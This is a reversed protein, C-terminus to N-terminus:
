KGTTFQTEWKKWSARVSNYNLGLTDCALKLSHGQDTIEKISLYKEMAGNKRVQISKNRGAQFKKEAKELSFTRMLFRHISNAIGRVESKSMPKDLQNNMETIQSLLMDGFYDSSGNKLSRYYAKYAWKRGESFLFCNRGEAEELVGEFRSVPRQLVTEPIFSKIDNFSYLPSDFFETTQLSSLPNRMIGGTYNPDGGAVTNISSQLQRFVYNQKENRAFGELFWGVHSHQSNPNTTIFHPTPLLEDDFVKEKIEWASDESDIDAVLLNKANFVNTEIFLMELAKDKMQRKVGYKLNNSAFPKLPNYLETFATTM